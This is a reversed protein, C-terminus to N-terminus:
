ANFSNLGVVNQANTNTHRCKKVEIEGCNNLAAAYIGGGKAPDNRRLVEFLPM